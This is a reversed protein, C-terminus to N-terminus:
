PHTRGSGGKATTFLATPVITHVRTQSETESEEPRTARIKQSATMSNGMAASGNEM